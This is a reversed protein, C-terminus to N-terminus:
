EISPQSAYTFAVEPILINNDQAKSLCITNSQDINAPTKEAELLLAYM